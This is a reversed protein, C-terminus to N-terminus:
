TSDSRTKIPFHRQAYRENVVAVATNAASDLGTFERGSLVAIRMTAFFGPGAGIFVANDRNPLPRGAPVM